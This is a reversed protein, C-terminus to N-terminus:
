CLRERRWATETEPSEAGSFLAKRSKASSVRGIEGDWDDVAAEVHEGQDAHTDADGITVAKDCSNERIQKGIRKSGGIM